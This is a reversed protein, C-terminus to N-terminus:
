SVRRGVVVAVDTAVRVETALLAPHRLWWLRNTDIEKAFRPPWEEFPSYDDIVVTGGITLAECPDFPEGGRKGSGVGANFVLLDFPGFALLARADDCRIDVGVSAGHVRRAAACRAADLEVSVFQVQDSAADAM